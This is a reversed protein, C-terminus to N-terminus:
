KKLKLWKEEEINNLLKNEVVKKVEESKYINLEYYETGIGNTRENIKSKINYIAKLKEKLIVINHKKNSILRFTGNDSKIKARKHMLTNIFNKLEDTNEPFKWDYIIYDDLANQLKISKQPHYFGINKNFKILNEKGYIYLRFINKKNKNKLKSKIGNKDLSDKIQKIGFLNVCDVGILRSKHKEVSVWGECDFYTRLWLKSFKKNLNPMRWEWSYFSGFNHTLFEYVYKSGKECRQKETLVPKIGWLQEFRKQFDQLLLLNTNRLGVRYYKHKQTSPNKIVYGDACLYAHIIVLDENFKM